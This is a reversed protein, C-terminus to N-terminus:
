CRYVAADALPRADCAPLAARYARELNEWLEASTGFVNALDQAVTHTILTMGGLLEEAWLATRGMRAAFHGVNWGREVLEDRIHEGPSAPIISNPLEIIRPEVCAVPLTRAHAAQLGGEQDIMTVLTAGAWEAFELIPDRQDARQETLCPYGMLDLAEGRLERKVADLTEAGRGKHSEHGDKVKLYLDAAQAETLGRREAVLAVNSLKEPLTIPMTM